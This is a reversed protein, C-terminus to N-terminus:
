TTSGLGGVGALSFRSSWGPLEYVNTWNPCHPCCHAELGLCLLTTQRTQVLFLRTYWQGLQRRCCCLSHLRNGLESSFPLYLLLSRLPIYHYLKRKTGAARQRRKIHSGAVSPNVTPRLPPLPAKLLMVSRSLFTRGQGKKNLHWGRAFWYPFYIFSQPQCSQPLQWARVACGHQSPVTSNREQSAISIYCNLLCLVDLLMAFLEQHIGWRWCCVQALCLLAISIAIFIRVRLFLPISPSKKILWNPKTQLKCPRISKQKQDKIGVPESGTCFRTFTSSEQCLHYKVTHYRTLIEKSDFFMLIKLFTYCYSAKAWGKSITLNIVKSLSPLWIEATAEFEELSPFWWRALLKTLVSARDFNM